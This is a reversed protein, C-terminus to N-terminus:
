PQAKETAASIEDGLNWKDYDDPDQSATKEDTRAFYCVADILKRLRAIEAAQQKFAAGDKGNYIYDRADALEGELRTKMTDYDEALVVEVTGEPTCPYDCPYDGGSESEIEFKCIVYRKVDQDSM